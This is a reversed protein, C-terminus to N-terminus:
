KSFFLDYLTSKKQEVQLRNGLGSVSPAGRQLSQISQTALSCGGMKSTSMTVWSHNCNEHKGLNIHGPANSKSIQSILDTPFHLRDPPCCHYFRGLGTSSCSFHVQFSTSTRLIPREYGNPVNDCLFGCGDTVSRNSFHLGSRGSLPM